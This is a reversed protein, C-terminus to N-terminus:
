PVEEISEVHDQGPEMNESAWQIGPDDTSLSERALETAEDQSEAELLLEGYEKWERSVQIM